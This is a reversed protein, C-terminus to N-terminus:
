HIHDSIKMDLIAYFIVCVIVSILNLFLKRRALKKDKAKLLLFVCVILTVVFHVISFLAQQIGLSISDNNLQSILEYYTISFYFAAIFFHLALIQIIIKLM